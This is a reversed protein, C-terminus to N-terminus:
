IENPFLIANPNGRTKKIYNGLHYAFNTTNFDEDYNFPDPMVFPKHPNIYKIEFIVDNENYIKFWSEKNEIQAVYYEINIKKTLEILNGNLALFNRGNNSFLAILGNNLVEYVGNNLGGIRDEELNIEDNLSFNM